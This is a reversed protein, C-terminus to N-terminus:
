LTKLPHPIFMSADEYIDTSNPPHNSLVPLKPDRPGEAPWQADTSFPLYLYRLIGVGLYRFIYRFVQACPM